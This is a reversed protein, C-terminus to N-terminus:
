LGGSEAGVTCRPSAGARDLFLLLPTELHTLRDPALPIQHLHPKQRMRLSSLFRSNHLNHALPPPRQISRSRNHKRRLLLHLRAKRSGHGSHSPSHISANALHLLSLRFVYLPDRGLSLCSSSSIHISSPGGPKGFVRGVMPASGLIKISIRCYTAM